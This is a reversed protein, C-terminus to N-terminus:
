IVIPERRPASIINNKSGGRTERPGYPSSRISFIAPGAPPTEGAILRAVKSGSM